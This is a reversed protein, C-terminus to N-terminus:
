KRMKEVVSFVKRFQDVTLEKHLKEITEPNGTLTAKIIQLAIKAQGPPWTNLEEQFETLPNFSSKSSGKDKMIWKYALCIAGLLIPLGLWNIVFEDEGWSELYQGFIYHNGSSRFSVFVTWFVIFAIGGKVPKSLNQFKETLSRDKVIPLHNLKKSQEAQPYDKDIKEEMYAFHNPKKPQAAQPYDNAIQEEIHAFHELLDAQFDENNDNEGINITRTKKDYAL